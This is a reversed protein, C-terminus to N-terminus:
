PLADSNPERTSVALVDATAHALVGEAVSGLMWKQFGSRGHTGVVILDAKLTKSWSHIAMPTSEEKPRVVHLSGGVGIKAMLESLKEHTREEEQMQRLRLEQMPLSALALPGSTEDMVHLSIARSQELLGLQKAAQAAAVSCASFDMAILVTRYQGAPFGNAMLVPKGSTRITREATTGLFIDRLLQRRHPGLVVIDARLDESAQAIGQFPDGIVVRSECNLGDEGRATKCLEDLLTTTESRHAEVM